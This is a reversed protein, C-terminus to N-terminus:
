AQTEADAQQTKSGTFEDPEASHKGILYGVFFVLMIGIVHLVWWAPGLFSWTSPLDIASLLLLSGNM